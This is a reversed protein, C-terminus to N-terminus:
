EKCIKNLLVWAPGSLVTFCSCSSNEGFWTCLNFRMETCSCRYLHLGVRLKSFKVKGIKLDANECAVDTETGHLKIRAGNQLGLPCSCAHNDPPDCICQARTRVVHYSVCLLSARPQTFKVKLCSQPSSVCGLGWRKM